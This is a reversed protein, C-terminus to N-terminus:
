DEFFQIEDMATHHTLDHQSPVISIYDNQLAWLDTDEGKDENVFEGTLWFYTKGFPSERVDYKEIWRAKAQRCVKIGKIHDTKPLNVNLLRTSGMGKELVQQIIKKLYPKLHEMDAEHSFDLYSFGISPIGDLSGEMAASVTGSYVINISANSGHNVGSVVLDIKRGKTVHDKALKVCDVPTGSCKYSEIGEFQNSEKLFLPVTLTLANSQGSQPLEPAVVVIDGLEQVVEVLCRIGPAFIGDDNTVLILPKKNM